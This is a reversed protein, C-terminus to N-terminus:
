KVQYRRRLIHKQCVCIEGRVRKFHCIKVLTSQTLSLIADAHFYCVFYIGILGALVELTYQYQICTTDTLTQAPAYKHKTHVAFPLINIHLLLLFFSFYNFVRQRFVLTSHPGIWFVFVICVIAHDCVYEGLGWCAM